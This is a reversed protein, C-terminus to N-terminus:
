LVIIFLYACIPGGQRTGRERKFYKLTKGRNIICSEHNNLLVKEM